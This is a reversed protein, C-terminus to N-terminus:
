SVADINPTGTEGKDRAVINSYIGGAPTCESVGNSDAAFLVIKTTAFYM